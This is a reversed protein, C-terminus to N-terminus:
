DTGPSYTNAHRLGEQIRSRRGAESGLTGPLEIERWHSKLIGTCGLNFAVHSLIMPLEVGFYGMNTQSSGM